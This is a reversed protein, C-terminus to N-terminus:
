LLQGLVRVFQENSLAGMRRRQVMRVAEAGSCGLHQRLILATVLGSRNIGAYCTCLVKKGEAMAQAAQQAAAAAKYLTKRSPPQSSDDQNPAHIVVVGPFESAPPQYEEACLVLLGFGADRVRTGTRPQSGQWLNHIIESSEVGVAM